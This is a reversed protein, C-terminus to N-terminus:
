GPFSTKRQCCLLQFCRAGFPHALVPVWSDSKLISTGPDLLSSKTNEKRTGRLRTKGRGGKHFGDSALTGRLGRELKDLSRFLEQDTQFGIADGNPEIQGPLRAVLGVVDYGSPNKGVDISQTAIAVPTASRLKSARALDGLEGDLCGLLKFLAVLVSTLNAIGEAAFHSLGSNQACEVLEPFLEADDWDNRISSLRGEPLRKTLAELLGDGFARGGRLDRGDADEGGDVQLSDDGGAHFIHFEEEGRECRAALNAFNHASQGGSALYVGGVHAM